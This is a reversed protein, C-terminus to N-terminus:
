VTFRPKMGVWNPDFVPLQSLSSKERLLKAYEEFESTDTKNEM